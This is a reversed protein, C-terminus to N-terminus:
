RLPAEAVVEIGRPAKDALLGDKRVPRGMYLPGFRPEARSGVRHEVVETIEYEAVEPRGVIAAGYGYGLVRTGEEFRALDALRRAKEAVLRTREADLDAIKARLDVLVPDATITETEAEFTSEPVTEFPVSADPASTTAKGRAKGKPGTKEEPTTEENM